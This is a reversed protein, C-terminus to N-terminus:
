PSSFWRRFVADLGWALAIGLVMGGLIDTPYHVGLAMRSYAVVCAWTLSAIIIWRKRYILILSTAVAFAELTHGSPFSTSGGKALKEITTHERFPRTRKIASKLGYTLLAALFFALGIQIMPKLCRKRFRSCIGIALIIGLSVYTTAASLFGLIGDLAIIRNTQIWELLSLDYFSIM